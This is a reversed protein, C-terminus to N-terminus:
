HLCSSQTKIFYKDIAKGRREREREGARWKEERERERGPITILATDGCVVLPDEVFVCDPFEERVKIHVIELGM